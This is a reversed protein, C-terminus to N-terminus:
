GGLNRFFTLGGSMGGSVVDLDGDGDVDVFLPTAFRPLDANLIGAEEFVPDTASGVNRWLAAGEEERGVVLDLDGDGDLDLLRPAARRGADLGSIAEAVLEWAPASASGVNRYFNVEGSSEGVLLDLDGDGDLDGYTPAAHSGRTLEVWADEGEREFVPASPTGTNRFFLVDDNWTGLTLDLDGDGDLDTLDPALHFFEGLVLTDRMEWRPAAPTGTNELHYLKGTRNENPDLKNGVLLDLDGDGDLDGFAPVSESGIDFGDLFRTSRQVFLGNAQMEYYHLNDASTRNPNFAGGLVGLVLDLDDDGDLDRLASANYGSTMITDEAPVAQPEYRFDPNAPTGRNEIWLLGAEFFDGWFLDDDGDHDLDAFTMSNAGHMTPRAGLNLLSPVGGAGGGGARGAPTNSRPQVGGPTSIAAVIEINEFREARMTFLPTGNEDIGTREWRQVTGDVRGLFLDPDGDDDIDTIYPINQRDSFLPNGDADPITDRVFVFRPDNPTGDNRFHRIYSFRTEALLDLDGDDDLDRFRTWEGVDLDQYKDTRWEFVPAAATGTNEFYILEDTREQIFLDADGDGDVDVFQPRPVDFGGLFPFGYADGDPGVIEFPRIEREFVDGFAIPVARSPSAGGPRADAAGSAGTAMRTASSCAGLLACLALVPTARRVVGGPTNPFSPM